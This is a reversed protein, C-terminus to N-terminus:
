YRGWKSAIKDGAENLAANAVAMVPEIVGRDFWGQHGYKPAYNLLRPYPYGKSYKKSKSVGRSRVALWLPLPKKHLVGKIKKETAGSLRPAGAKGSREGMESLKTMAEKWPAAILADPPTLLRRLTDM